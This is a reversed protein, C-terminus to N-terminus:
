KELLLADRVIVTGQTEVVNVSLYKDFAWREGRSMRGSTMWDLLVLSASEQMHVMQRQNYKASEFCTVPDPLLCVLANSHVTVILTQYTQGIDFKGENRPNKLYSPPRGPRYRYVKTSGQTLLLLATGPHAHVDVHIQDGHVIGGGYSLIYSVAPLLQTTGPVAEPSLLKLPYASSLSQHVRGA